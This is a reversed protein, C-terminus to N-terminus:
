FNSKLNYDDLMAGLLDNAEKDMDVVENEPIMQNTELVKKMVGLSVTYKLYNFVDESGTINMVLKIKTMLVPSLKEPLRIMIQNVMETQMKENIYPEDLNNIYLICYEDIVSNIFEDIEVIVESRNISSYFRQKELNTLEVKNNYDLTIKKNMLIFFLVMFIIGLIGITTCIAITTGM